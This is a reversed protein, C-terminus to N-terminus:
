AGLNCCETVDCFRLCQASLRVPDATATSAEPVRFLDQFFSLVMRACASWLWSNKFPGRCLCGLFTLKCVLWVALQIHADLGSTETSSLFLFLILLDTIMEDRGRPQTSVPPKLGPFTARILSPVPHERSLHDSHHGPGLAPHGSHRLCRSSEHEGPASGLSMSIAVAVCVAGTVGPHLSEVSRLADRGRPLVILPSGGPEGRAWM